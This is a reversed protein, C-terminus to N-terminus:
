LKKVIQIAEDASHVVAWLISQKSLLEQFKVQEVSIRVPLSKFELWISKGNKGVWFDSVGKTATSRRHTAHWCYPLNNLLLWNAFIKQEDRELRPRGGGLIQARPPAPEAPEGEIMARQAESLDSYRIGM